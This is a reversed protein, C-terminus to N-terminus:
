REGAAADRVDDHNTPALNLVTVGIFEGDPQVQWYCTLDGPQIGLSSEVLAGLNERSLFVRPSSGRRPVTEGCACPAVNEACVSRLFAGTRGRGFPDSTATIGGSQATEAKGNENM